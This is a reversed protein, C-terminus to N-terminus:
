GAFRFENNMLSCGGLAILPILLAAGILWLLLESGPKDHRILHRLTKVLITIEAAVVVLNWGAMLWSGAAIMLAFFIFLLAVLLGILWLLWFGIKMALSYTHIQRSVTSM